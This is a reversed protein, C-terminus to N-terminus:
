EEDFLSLDITRKDGLDSSVGNMTFAESIFESSTGPFLMASGPELCMKQHSNVVTRYSEPLISSFRLLKNGYANQTDDGQRYGSWAHVDGNSLQIDNTVYINEILVNGDSVQIAKISEAVPEPDESIENLEGDTMHVILPAPCHEHMVPTWTALDDLLMKRAVKFGGATNTRHQPHLVPVSDIDGVPKIGDLIDWVDTSYAIMGVRYRARITGQRLSRQVMSTIVSRLARMVVDIRTLGDEMPKGMSRSIDLVYIVLAPSDSLAVRTYPLATM